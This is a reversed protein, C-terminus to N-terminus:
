LQDMIDDFDSKKSRRRQQQQRRNGKSKETDLVEGFIEERRKAELLAKTIENKLKTVESQKEALDIAETENAASPMNPKLHGQTSGQWWQAYTEARQDIPMLPLPRGRADFIVGGTGFTVRQKIRRKGAIKLGRGAVVTVDAIQGAAGSAAWIEGGNLTHQVKRGDDFQITIKMATGRTTGVTTFVTGIYSLGFKEYVQVAITPDAYTAIAGLLPMVSYPDAYLEIMGHVQLGDLVLMSAVGPHLGETLVGGAVILVAPQSFEVYQQSSLGAQADKMMYDMMARAIAQELLVDQFTPPLTEPYLVKNHAYELLHAEPMEFSLYSQIKHIGVKDITTLLSHGMGMDSYINAAVEGEFGYSFTSTASGIDVHLVPRIYTELLWRVISSVGQATPTIGLEAVNEFGGPQRAIRDGFARSLELRANGLEEKMLGPRINNAILLRTDVDAFVTEVDVILNNNGAFLVLPREEPPALRVALAAVEVLQMVGEVNGGDTGGSIFILDPKAKLIRNIQGELDEKDNLSLMAAIEIYTGTLARVASNISVTPMLGLLVTSLPRGASSTIVLRDIGRGNEEPFILGDDDLLQRRTSREISTIARILGVSVDLFPPGLTTLTKASAVLRYQGDVLDILIARTNTAGFDAALISNVSQEIYM